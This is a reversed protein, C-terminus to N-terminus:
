MKLEWYSNFMIKIKNRKGLSMIVKHKRYLGLKKIKIM